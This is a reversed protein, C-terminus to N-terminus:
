LWRRGQSRLVHLRRRALTFTSQVTAPCLFSGIQQCSQWERSERKRGDDTLEEGEGERREKHRYQKQGDKTRGKAGRPVSSLPTEPRQEPRDREREREGEWQFEASYNAPFARAFNFHFIFQWAHANQLNVDRADRM